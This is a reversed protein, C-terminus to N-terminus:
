IFKMNKLIKLIRVNLKGLKHQAKEINYMVVINKIKFINLFNGIGDDSLIM